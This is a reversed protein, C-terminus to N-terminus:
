LDAGTASQVLMALSDRIEAGVTSVRTGVAEFAGAIDPRGGLKQMEALFTLVVSLDELEGALREGLQRNM